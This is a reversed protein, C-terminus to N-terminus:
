SLLILQILAVTEEKKKEKEKVIIRPLLVLEIADTSNFCSFCFVVHM